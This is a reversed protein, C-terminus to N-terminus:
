PSQDEYLGLLATLFNFSVWYILWENIWAPFRIYTKAALIQWLYCQSCPSPPILVTSFSLAVSSQSDSGWILYKCYHQALAKVSLCLVLFVCCSTRISGPPTWLPKLFSTAKFLCERISAYKEVSIEMPYQPLGSCQQASLKHFFILCM